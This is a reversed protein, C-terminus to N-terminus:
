APFIGSEDLSGGLATIEAECRERLDDLPTGDLVQELRAGTLTRLARVVNRLERVAREPHGLDRYVRALAWRAHVLDPELYLASRLSAEAKQPEGQSARVAGLLALHSCVVLAPNLLSHPKM